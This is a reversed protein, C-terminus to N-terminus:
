RAGGTGVRHCSADKGHDCSGCILRWGDRPSFQHADLCRAPDDEERLAQTPAFLATLKDASAEASPGPEWPKAALPDAAFERALTDERRWLQEREALQQSVVAEGEFDGDERAHAALWRYSERVERRHREVAPRELEVIRDRNARLAEAADSLAENTVHREAELEAIRVATAERKGRATRLDHQWTEHDAQRQAELEAVRARLEAYEAKLRDGYAKRGKVEAGRQRATAQVARLLGTRKELTARLKAIMELCWSLDDHAHLILELDAPLMNTCQGVTRPYGDVRTRVTGPALGMETAPAKYWHGPQAKDVRTQIGAVEQDVLEPVDTWHAGMPLRPRGDEGRGWPAKARDADVPAEMEAVQARLTTNETVLEDARKVLAKTAPLAAGYIGFRAVENGIEAREARLRELEAATVPSQLMQASELAFAAQSALDYAEGHLWAADIVKKAAMVAKSASM